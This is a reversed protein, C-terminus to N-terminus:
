SNLEKLKSWRPDLNSDITEPEDKDSTSFIIEGEQHEEAENFDDAQFRPHLKKGPISLAVLDYILQDFDIKLRDRAIVELEDSLEVEEEGFNFFHSTQISVPHSFEDLSRDCVLQVQGKISILAKIMLESIELRISIFLVPKSFFDQSFSQLFDDNLQFDFSHLGESLGAIEIETFKM